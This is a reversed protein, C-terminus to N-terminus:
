TLRVSNCDGVCLEVKASLRAANSKTIQFVKTAFRAENGVGNSEVTLQDASINSAPCRSVSVM